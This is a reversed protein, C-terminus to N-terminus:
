ERETARLVEDLFAKLQARQRMAFSWFALVMALTALAATALGAPGLGMGTDRQLLGYSTWVFLVVLVALFLWTRRRVELRAEVRSGGRRSRIRGVMRTTRQQKEWIVFEHGGVTGKWEPGVKIVGLARKPRVNIAARLRAALAEPAVPM